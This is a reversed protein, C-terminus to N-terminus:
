QGFGAADSLGEQREHILPMLMEDDHGYRLAM